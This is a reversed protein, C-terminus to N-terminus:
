SVINKDNSGEFQGTVAPIVAGKPNDLTSSPALGCTNNDFEPNWNAGPGNQPGTLSGQWYGNIYSGENTAWVPAFIPLASLVLIIVMLTAGQKLRTM